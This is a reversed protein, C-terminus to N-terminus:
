ENRRQLADMWCSQFRTKRLFRCVQKLMDLPLIAFLSKKETKRCFCLYYCVDYCLDVACLSLLVSNSHKRVCKLTRRLKENESINFDILNLKYFTSPIFILDNEKLYLNTLKHLKGMTRPLQTLHNDQLNIMNLETLQGIKKSVKRLLCCSLDLITLSRLEFVQKPIKVFLNGHMLLEKNNKLHVTGIGKIIASLDETQLRYNNFNFSEFNVASELVIEQSKSVDYPLIVPKDEEEESLICRQVNGYQQFIVFVGDVTVSVVVAPYYLQDELFLALVLDGVQLNFIFDLNDGMFLKNITLKNKVM